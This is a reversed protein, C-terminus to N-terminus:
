GSNMQPYQMARHQETQPGAAQHPHLAERYAFFPRQTLIALLPDTHPYVHLRCMPCVFVGPQLEQLRLQHKECFRHYVVPPKQKESNQWGTQYAWRLAQNIDWTSPPKTATAPSKRRLWGLLRKFM